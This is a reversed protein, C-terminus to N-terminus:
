RGAGRLSEEIPLLVWRDAPHLADRLEAFLVPDAKTEPDFPPPNIGIMGPTVIVSVPAPGILLTWTRSATSM